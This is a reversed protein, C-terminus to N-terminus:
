DPDGEQRYLLPAAGRDAYVYLLFIAEECTRANGGHVVPFSRGSLPHSAPSLLDERGGRPAGVPHDGGGHTTCFTRRLSLWCGSKRSACGPDPLFLHPELAEVASQDLGRRHFDAHRGGKPAFFSFVRSYTKEIKAYLPFPNKPTARPAHPRQILSSRKAQILFYSHHHRSRRSRPSLDCSNQCENDRM